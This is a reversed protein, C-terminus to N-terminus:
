LNFIECFENLHEGLLKKAELVKRLEQMFEADAEYRDWLYHPHPHPHKLVELLLKHKPLEKIAKDILMCNYANPYSLQLMHQRTESITDYHTMFPKIVNM